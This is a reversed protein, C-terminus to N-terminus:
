HISHISYQIASLFKAACSPNDVRYRDEAGAMPVVKQTPRANYLVGRVITNECQGAAGSTIDCTVRAEPGCEHLAALGNLM